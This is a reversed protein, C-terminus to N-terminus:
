GAARRFAIATNQEHANFGGLPVDIPAACAAKGRPGHHDPEANEV